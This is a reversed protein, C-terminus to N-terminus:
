LGVDMFFSFVKKWKKIKFGFCSVFLKNKVNKIGLNFISKLGIRTDNM